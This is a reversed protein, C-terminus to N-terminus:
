QLNRNNEKAERVNNTQEELQPLLGEAINLKALERQTILYLLAAALALTGSTVPIMSPAYDLLIGSVVSGTIFGLSILFNVEGLVRHAQERFCLTVLKIGTNLYSWAIGIISLVIITIALLEVHTSALFATFFLLFMAGRVFMSQAVRVLVKRVHRLMADITIVYSLTALFAGVTRATYIEFNSLGLKSLLPPLATFFISSAFFGLLVSSYFLLVMRVLGRASSRKEIRSKGERLNARNLMNLLPKLFALAPLASLSAVIFAMNLSRFIFCALAGVLFGVSWGLNQPVTLAVLMKRVDNEQRTMAYTLAPGLASYLLGIISFLGLIVLWSTTLAVSIGALVLIIVSLALFINYYRYLSRPIILSGIMSSLHFAAYTVGITIGSYSLEHLKLSTGIFFVAYGVSPFVFFLAPVNRINRFHM